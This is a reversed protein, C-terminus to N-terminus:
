RTMPTRKKPHQVRFFFVFLIFLYFTLNYVGNFMPGELKDFYKRLVLREGGEIISQAEFPAGSCDGVLVGLMSGRFKSLVKAAAASM